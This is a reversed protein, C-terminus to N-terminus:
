VWGLTDKSLRKTVAAGAVVGILFGTMLSSGIGGAPDPARGTWWVDIGYLLLALPASLLLVCYTASWLWGQLREFGDLGIAIAIRAGHLAVWMAPTCALVASGASTSDTWVDVFSAVVGSGVLIAVILAFVAM